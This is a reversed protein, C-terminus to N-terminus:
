FTAEFFGGWFRQWPWSHNRTVNGSGKHGRDGEKTLFQSNQVSNRLWTGGTLVTAGEECGSRLGRECGREGFFFGGGARIYFGREDMSFKKVVEERKEM